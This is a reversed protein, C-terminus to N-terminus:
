KGLYDITSMKFDEMWDWKNMVFCRFETVSLEVEERTEWEMMQIAQDYADVFNRPATLTFSIGRCFVITDTTKKPDFIELEQQTRRFAKQLEVQAKEFEGELRRRAESLYGSVAKEYERLHDARNKKLTELLQATKVVTTRETGERMERMQRMNM